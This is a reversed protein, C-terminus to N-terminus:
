NFTNKIDTTMTSPSISNFYSIFNGTTILLADPTISSTKDTNRNIDTIITDPTTTNTNTTIEDNKIKKILKLNNM